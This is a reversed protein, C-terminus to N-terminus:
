VVSKRDIAVVDGFSPRSVVLLTGDSNTYMDDVFQDHGEGILHRIGLFYALRLPNLYIEFMRANRDPIVNIRRIRQFDGDARLVDVTGDWNNGVFLVEQAAATNGAAAPAGIGLAAVCAFAVITRLLKM